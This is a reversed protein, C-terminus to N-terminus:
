YNKPKNNNKLEAIFKEQKLQKQQQKIIKQKQKNATADAQKLITAKNAKMQKQLETGENTM